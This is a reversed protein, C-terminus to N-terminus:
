PLYNCLHAADWNEPVQEVDFRLRDDRLAAFDQSELLTLADDPLTGRPVRHKYDAVAEDRDPLVASLPDLDRLKARRLGEALHIKQHWCGGRGSGAVGSGSRKSRAACFQECGRWGRWRPLVREHDAVASV